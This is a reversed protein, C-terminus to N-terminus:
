SCFYKRVLQTLEKGKCSLGNKIGLVLHFVPLNSDVDLYDVYRLLVSKEKGNRDVSKEKRESM